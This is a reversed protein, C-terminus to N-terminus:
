KRLKLRLSNLVVSLSSFAMAGGAIMPSLLFGNVPYLAGAAIPIAIVNYLFAWFLNQKITSNIQGSLKFFSSIKSIDGGMLTVDASEIAVDTGTSMAIGLEAQALAPADNIGDGVFATAGYKQQVEKLYTLKQDPLLGSKYFEIGSEHAAAAVAAEHDGSLVEIHLGRSKLREVAKVVEPKVNDHLGYIALLSEGKWFAVISNGERAFEKVIEDQEKPLGKLDKLGTVKYLDDDIEAKLGVGSITEVHNIMFPILSYQRNLFDTLAGAMPHNSQSELSSLISLYQLREEDKFFLHEQVVELEGKSITGTKDFLLAKMTKPKELTEANKILIGQSAAKGVGVMIATPTALGLACPCAIILVSFTNVFALSFSNDAGSFSWFCFTIVSLVLVVPVFVSSIKDALRQAPAKSGVAESVMQIIQGLATESGLKEASIVLSGNKLITGANVQDGKVREIPVSEGTLMSEDLLANGQHIFGDVPIKDGTKIVLLDGKEVHDLPIEIEKDGEKKIATKAQLKMLKEIATSSKSKAKEELYKGLLIFVLIVAASEYYVNVELGLSEIWSPFLTNILSFIFAAGTGSAILTDMNTHLRSALRIANKFFPLGSYFLVPTTLSLLLFNKYEFEGVVMSLVMVLIALPAALYLQKRLDKLKSSTSKAEAGGLVLDYGANKVLKKLDKLNAEQELELSVQHTAYNVQASVVYQAKNLTKEVTNACAACTMGDVPLQKKLSPTQSM